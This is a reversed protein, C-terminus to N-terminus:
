WSKMRVHRRMSLACLALTALLFGSAQALLEPYTVGEAPPTWFSQIVRALLAGLLGAVPSMPGWVPGAALRRLTGAAVAALALCSATWGWGLFASDAAIMVAAGVAAPLLWGAWVCQGAGIREARQHVRRRVPRGFPSLACVVLVASGVVPVAYQALTPVPHYRAAVWSHVAIVTLAWGGLSVLLGPLGLLPRGASGPVLLRSVAVAAGVTTLAHGVSWGVAAGVSLGLPAVWTPTVIDSWYPEATGTLTFISRDVVSAMLLGYAAALLLLGTWGLGRRVTIERILIAVFGYLPIFMVLETAIASPDGTSDLYGSSYEAFLPSGLLLVGLAAM